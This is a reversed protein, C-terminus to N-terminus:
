IRGAAVLLACVCFFLVYLEGMGGVSRDSSYQEAVLERLLEGHDDGNAEEDAELLMEVTTRPEGDENM